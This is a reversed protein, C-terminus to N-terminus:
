HKISTMSKVEVGIPFLSNLFLINCGILSKSSIKYYKEDKNYNFIGGLSILGQFHTDLRRRGIKDGGPSPISGYGFRSLLPGVLMVSGRLQKGDIKFQDSSLYDLNIEDSKFSYTGHSIKKIKVGLKSLIEILKNVDIIDPINNIIIKDSTLLTACLVQLCENKAGQPNIEGKLPKGGKIRFTGM